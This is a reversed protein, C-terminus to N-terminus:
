FYYLSMIICGFFYKRGMLCCRGNYNIICLIRWYSMMDKKKYAGVSGTTVIVKKKGVKYVNNLYKLLIMM